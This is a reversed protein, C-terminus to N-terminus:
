GRPLGVARRCFEEVRKALRDRDITGEKTVADDIAGHIGSFLFVAALRPDDIAWAKARVGAHLLDALHDIVINDVLGERTPPRREHFLMDHLSISDLYFAVNARTWSTLKASWDQEPQELLAAEIVALHERAYREGLAARIEDKSAFYLYFTGKAVGAGSTIQEITTASVGLDLFLRQAANMLEDRRQEPPKTRPQRKTQDAM